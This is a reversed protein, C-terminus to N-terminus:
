RFQDNVASRFRIRFHLDSIPHDPEARVACKGEAERQGIAPVFERRYGSRCVAGVATASTQGEASGRLVFPINALVRLIGPELFRGGRMYGLCCPMPLAISVRQGM